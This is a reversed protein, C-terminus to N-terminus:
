IPRIDTLRAKIRPASNTPKPSAGKDALAAVFKLMLRPPPLLLLPVCTQAGM